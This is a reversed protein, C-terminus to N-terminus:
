AAKNNHVAMCAWVYSNARCAMAFIAQAKRKSLPGCQTSCKGNEQVEVFWYQDLRVSLIVEYGEGRFNRVIEM